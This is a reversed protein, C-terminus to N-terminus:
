VLTPQGSIELTVDATLKEDIPEGPEFATLLAAFSWTTSGSDPFVLQFNRLTRSRMDKILGTTNDHTANTPIYNISFTVEGGNLLAGIKERWGGTSDHSTADATELALSPGGLDTVEAITTFGETPTAADGLKLLTGQAFIAGTAM